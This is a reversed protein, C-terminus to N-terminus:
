ARKLTVLPVEEADYASEAIVGEIVYGFLYALADEALELPHFPLPYKDDDEEDEVGHEGNWYPEEFSYRAGIDEIIGSDPSLSLARVLEGKEWVAYAFWDVASHMAHLVVTSHPMGDVYERSLQSPYDVGFEAAAVVAVTGYHGVFVEDDAPNTYSLSGDDGESFTAAPFLRKALAVSEERNLQPGQALAERPNGNSSVLMWTKAGM